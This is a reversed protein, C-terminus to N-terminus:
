RHSLIRLIQRLLCKTQRDLVIRAKARKELRTRQDTSKEKKMAHTLTLNDSAHIRTYVTCAFEVKGSNPNALDRKRIYVSWNKDNRCRPALEGSSGSAPSCSLCLRERECQLPAAPSTKPKQVRDSSDLLSAQILRDALVALLSRRLRVIM